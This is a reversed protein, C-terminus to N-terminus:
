LRKNKNVIFADVFTAFNTFDPLHRRTFALVRAPDLTEYDHVLRNRYRAISQMKQMLSLDILRADGLVQFADVYDRPSRLNEMKIIANALDLTAECALQLRRELADQLIGDSLLDEESVADFHRLDRIYEDLRTLWRQITALDGM